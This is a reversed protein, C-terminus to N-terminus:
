LASFWKKIFEYAQLNHRIGNHTVGEIIKIEAQSNESVAKKMAEANFAEDNTGILVLTPANLSKLGVKYDEPAMSMNARHTYKRSPMNEPLNFFLVPLSDHSHNGIENFMKLGIIRAIHIKMFPEISDTETPLAQQIAPSNHGILPAFLLYGDIKTKNRQMAYNLAVGGGMSHGAIIIKGKPKQKRITKVIDALDDAYQNIYDVDGDKGYKSKQFEVIIKDACTLNLAQDLTSGHVTVFDRTLKKEWENRNDYYYM